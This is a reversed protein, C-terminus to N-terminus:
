SFLKASNETKSYGSLYPGLPQSFFAGKKFFFQSKASRAQVTFICIQIVMFLYMLDTYALAKMYSFM